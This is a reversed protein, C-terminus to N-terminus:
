ESACCSAARAAAIVRNEGAAFSASALSHAAMRSMLMGRASFHFSILAVAADIPGATRRSSSTAISLEGAAFSNGSAVVASSPFRQFSRLVIQAARAVHTNIM